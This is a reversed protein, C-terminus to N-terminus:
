AKMRIEERGAPGSILASELRRRRLHMPACNTAVKFLMARPFLGQQPRYRRHLKECTDLAVERTVDVRGLMQTLYSTLRAEHARCLREIFKEQRGQIPFRGIDGM